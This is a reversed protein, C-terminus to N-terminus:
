HGKQPRKQTAALTAATRLASLTIGPPQDLLPRRNRTSAVVLARGARHHTDHAHIIAFGSFAPLFPGTNKFVRSAVYATGLHRNMIAGPQKNAIPTLLLRLAVAQGTHVLGPLQVRVDAM